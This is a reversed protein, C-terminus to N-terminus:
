PSSTDKTRRGASARGTGCEARGGGGACLSPSRSSISSIVSTTCALQDSYRLARWWSSPSPASEVTSGAPRGAGWCGRDQLEAARDVSDAVGCHAGSSRHVAPRAVAQETSPTLPLGALQQATTKMDEQLRSMDFAQAVEWNINGSEDRVHLPSEDGHYYDDQHLVRSRPLISALLRALSTKGSCTAGGVLVTLM